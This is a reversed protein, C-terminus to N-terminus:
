IDMVEVKEQNAKMTAIMKELIIMVSDIPEMKEPSNKM